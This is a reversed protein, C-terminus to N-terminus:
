DEESSGDFEEQMVSGRERNVRSSESLGVEDVMDNREESLLSSFM